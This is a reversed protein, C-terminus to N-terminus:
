KLRDVKVMTTYDNVTQIIIVGQSSETLQKEVPREKNLQESTMGEPSICCTASILLGEQESFLSFEVCTCRSSTLAYVVRSQHTGGDRSEVRRTEQLGRWWGNHSALTNFSALGPPPQAIGPCPPTPRHHHSSAIGGM